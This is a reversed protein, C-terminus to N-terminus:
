QEYANVVDGFFSKQDAVSRDTRESFKGFHRQGNLVDLVLPYLIM